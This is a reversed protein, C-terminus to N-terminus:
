PGFLGSFFERLGREGGSEWALLAATGIVAIDAHEAIFSIDQKESVGFGVALPLDTYRRCRALFVAVDDSMRTSIGTVGKRAVAYIFADAVAALEALRADRNTPTMLIIPSLDRETAIGFLEGGEEIPLDPVILGVGGSERLRDCFEVHGTKFVTNYYGMMLTKFSFRRNVEAMFDFCDRVHVGNAIAQQNAKVFSPGDASPESFPFQLEVLDVDFEQMIELEKMNDDFSPYGCVVHTMVLVPKQQCREALYSSLLM